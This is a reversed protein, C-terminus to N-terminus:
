LTLTLSRIYFLNVLKNIQGHNIPSASKDKFWMLLRCTFLQYILLNFRIVHCSLRSTFGLTRIQEKKTPIEGYSGNIMSVTMLESNRKTSPRCNLIQLKLSRSSFKYISENKRCLFWRFSQYKLSSVVHVLFVFIWWAFKIIRFIQFRRIYFPQYWSPIIVMRIIWWIEKSARSQDLCM